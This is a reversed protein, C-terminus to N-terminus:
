AEDLHHKLAEYAANHPGLHLSRNDGYLFPPYRSFSSIISDVSSGVRLFNTAVTLNSNECKDFTCVQAVSAVVITCGICNQIFISNVPADIYIYCKECNTLRVNRNAMQEASRITVCKTLPPM